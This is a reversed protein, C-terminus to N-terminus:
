CCCRLELDDDDDAFKLVISMDQYGHFRSFDMAAPTTKFDM